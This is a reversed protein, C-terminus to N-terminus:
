ILSVFFLPHWIAKQVGEKMISRLSPIKERKAVGKRRASRNQSFVFTNLRLITYIQTYFYISRKEHKKYLRSINMPYYLEFVDRQVFLM